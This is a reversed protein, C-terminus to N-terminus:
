FNVYYIFIVTCYTSSNEVPFAICQALQFYGSRLDCDGIEPKKAYRPLPGQRAQKSTSHLANTMHGVASMVNGTIVLVQCKWEEQIWAQIMKEVNEVQNAHRSYMM